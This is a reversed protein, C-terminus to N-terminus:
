SQLNANRLFADSVRQLGSAMISLRRRDATRRVRTQHIQRAYADTLAIWRQLDRDPHLQYM